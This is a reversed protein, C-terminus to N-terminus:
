WKHRGQDPNFHGEVGSRNCSMEVKPKEVGFKLGSKKLWLIFEEVRAECVVIHAVGM